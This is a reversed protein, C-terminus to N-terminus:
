AVSVASPAGSSPAGVAGHIYRVFDAGKPLLAFVRENPGLTFDRREVQTVLGMGQLKLLISDLEGPLTTGLVKPRQDRWIRNIIDVDVNWGAKNLESFQSEYMQGLALVDQDSLDRAVRMMEEAKNFNSMEGLTIAHALIKGIREVRKQDRLDEAKRTADLILNVVDEERKESEQRLQDVISSVHKLEDWATRLMLEANERRQKQAQSQLLSILRETGPVKSAILSLIANVTEPPQQREDSAILAEVQDQPNDISM